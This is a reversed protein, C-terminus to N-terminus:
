IPFTLTLSLSFSLIHSLFLFLSFTHSHTLSFSVQQTKKNSLNPPNFTQIQVCQQNPSWLWTNDEASRDCEGKRTCRFSSLWDCVPKFEPNVMCPRQCSSVVNGM